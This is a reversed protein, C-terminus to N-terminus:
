THAQSYTVGNPFLLDRVQIHPNVWVVTDITVDLLVISEGFRDLIKQNTWPEALSESAQISLSLCLVGVFLMISRASSM